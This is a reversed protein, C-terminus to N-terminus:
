DLHAKRNKCHAAALSNSVLRRFPEWAGKGKKEALFSETSGNFVYKDVAFGHFCPLYYTQYRGHTRGDTQRDMQAGTRGNSSKRKDTWKHVQGDTVVRVSSSMNSHDTDFFGSEICRDPNFM